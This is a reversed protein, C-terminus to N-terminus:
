EGTLFYDIIQNMAPMITPLNEKTLPHALNDDGLEITLAPIKCRMALYDTLGGYSGTSLEAQFSTLQALHEATLKDELRSYYIVNGKTHLALSATPRFKHILRLLARNEPESHPEPGIYNAPAVMTLNSRGHGWGADFNVNLDVANLNAKWLSFDDSNHNIRKLRKYRRPSLNTLQGMALRAGDPNCCIVATICLDDPLNRVRHCWNQLALSGIWERAHMGATILLRRPATPNGFQYAVIPQKLVSFGIINTSLLNNLDAYQSIGIPLQETGCFDTGWNLKATKFNRKFYSIHKILDYIDCSTTHKTLFKPVLALGITGGSKIIARIQHNTLNRPHRHVAHFATHTCVLPRTTVRTFQWFSCRNLHATDIQIDASELEQIVQYGFKTIKGHSHAGGALNNAANWTLGVSHPKLDILQALNDPTLFWADEIHLRCVPYQPDDAIKDLVAKKETIVALPDALETTWVSLWIEDVGDIKAQRLYALLEEPPLVLLADNHLDIM